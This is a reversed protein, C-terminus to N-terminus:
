SNYKRLTEYLPLNLSDNASQITAPKPINSAQEGSRFIDEPQTPEFINPGTLKKPITGTVIPQESDIQQETLREPQNKDKDINSEVQVSM